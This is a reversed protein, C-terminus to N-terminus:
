IFFGVVISWLSLVFVMEKGIQEEFEQYGKTQPTTKFHHASETTHIERIGYVMNRKRQLNYKEIIVPTSRKKSTYNLNPISTTRYCTNRQNLLVYKEKRKYLTNRSSSQHYGKTQPATQFQYAPCLTPYQLFPINPVQLCALKSPSELQRRMFHRTM